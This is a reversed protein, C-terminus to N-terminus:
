REIKTENNLYLPGYRVMDKTGAPTMEIELTKLAEGIVDAYGTITAERNSIAM